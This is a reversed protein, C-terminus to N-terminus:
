KNYNLKLERLFISLDSIDVRSDGNLDAKLKESEIDSIFNLIFISWDSLDITDNSDFDAKPFTLSSMKFARPSSFDSVKGSQNQQRVKIYHLGNKLGATSTAFGYSGDGSSKTTGGPLDDIKVEITNNPAAYGFLKLEQGQAIISKNFNVTPPIFINDVVLENNERLDANFSFLGASQDDKDSVKLIFLYDSGVLGVQTIVFSGNASVTTTEEPAFVYYDQYKSERSLVEIKSGPYAQGSLVVKRAAGGAGGSIGTSNEAPQPPPTYTYNIVASIQSIISNKKADTNVIGIEIDSSSTKVYNAPIEQTTEVYSNDPAIDVGSNTCSGDLCQRTQLLGNGKSKKSCVTISISNITAGDPISSEDIDFTQSTADDANVIYSTDGDSNTCNSGSNEDVELYCDTTNCPIESNNRWLSSDDGGDAVPRLVVTVDASSVSVKALFFLILSCVVICLVLLLLKIIKKKKQTM